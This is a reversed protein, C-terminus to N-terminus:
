TAVEDRVDIKGTVVESILTTRYEKFLEVQKKFKDIITTLRACEAEIHAGISTQEAENTKLFPMESMLQMSLAPQASGKVEIDIVGNQKLNLLQYHIFKLNYGNGITLKLSNGSVVSPKDLKPLIGSMGFNAGIKAIVIDNEVCESRKITEFHEETITKFEKHQNFCGSTIYGSDIVYVGGNNVFHETKLNSGFPGDVFSNKVEAKVYKLRKVEWHEPIDGLWDVGSPKTKVKPDLGKTVAHNIITAKEEEYLAILKEKNAILQDIEATKRDLFTAIATQEATDALPFLFNKLVEFNLGERGSGTQDVDIQKQGVDSRLLYYLYKTGIASAPRIICVHQNVNAEELSGDSFYCRGISAGTINLLVDGDMVKSNQMEDHIEQSIYAVDDLKLGNFHINQSRLLPIGDLQYANAGGKPTVGSGVKSVVLKLRKVDWGEPIEGIWEM